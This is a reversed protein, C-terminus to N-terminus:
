RTTKHTLLPTVSPDVYDIIPTVLLPAQPLCAYTELKLEVPIGRLSDM